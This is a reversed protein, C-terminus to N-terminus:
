SPGSQTMDRSSSQPSPTPRVHEGCPSRHWRGSDKRGGVQARPEEPPCLGEGRNGPHLIIEKCEDAIPQTDATHGPWLLIFSKYVILESFHRINGLGVYKMYFCAETGM